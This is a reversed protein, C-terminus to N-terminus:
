WETFDLIVGGIMKNTISLLPEMDWDMKELILYELLGKTM